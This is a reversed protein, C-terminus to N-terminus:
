GMCIIYPSIPAQPFKINYIFYGGWRRHLHPSNDAQPLKSLFGGGGFSPTIHANYIYIYRIAGAGGGWLGRVGEKPPPYVCTYVHTKGVNGRSRPFPTLRPSPPPLLVLSTFCAFLSVFTPNYLVGGGLLAGGQQRALFFISLFFLFACARNAQPM